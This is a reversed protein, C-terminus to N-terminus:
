EVKALVLFGLSVLHESSCVDEISKTRNVVGKKLNQGKPGRAHSESEERKRKQPIPGGRM